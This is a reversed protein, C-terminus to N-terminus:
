LLINNNSISDGPLRLSTRDLRPEAISVDSRSFWVIPMLLLCSLLTLFKVQIKM